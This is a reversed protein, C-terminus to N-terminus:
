LDNFLPMCLFNRRLKILSKYGYPLIGIIFYSDIM